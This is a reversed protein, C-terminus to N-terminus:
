HDNAWTFTEIQHKAEDIRGQAEALLFERVAPSTDPLAAREAYDAEAKALM